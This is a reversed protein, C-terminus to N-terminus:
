VVPRYELLSHGWGIQHTSATMELGAREACTQLTKLDYMRSTGNAVCTFYLSIAQLCFEGVETEQQDWLNDLILIRGQPALAARALRLIKEVEAESFCCLFQSMWIVDQGGPLSATRDLLSVPHFHAREQLGAETINQQAVKLQVPLDALTVQVQEDRRLAQLAFKGTNGGVDLIKKPQGAFVRDLILPFSDDSYFHDFEFWSTKAPESLEQLGEYVTPWPGLEQLGVARGQEISEPLHEAARYCVDQTFNMNVRTLPDKELLYGVRTLCFFEGEQELMGLALGAECLVRIGYQSTGTLEALEPASRRRGPSRLLCDLIGRDRLTRAAQFLLPAFAIWQATKMASLQSRGKKQSSVSMPLDADQWDLGLFPIM